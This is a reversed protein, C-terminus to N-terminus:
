PIITGEWVKATALESADLGGVIYIKGGIQEVTFLFLPEPLAPGACWSDSGVDYLYISDKVTTNKIGGMLWIKSGVVTARAGYKTESLSALSSWTNTSPNFRRGLVPEFGGGVVGFVYLQGNYAVGTNGGGGALDPLPALDTWTNTAPDYMNVKEDNGTFGGALYMKGNIVAAAPYRRPWPNEALLTWTDSAPNWKMPDDGGFLGQGFAILSGGLSAAAGEDAAYPMDSKVTWANTSPNFVRHKLYSSGGLVHLEGNFAASIINQEPSSLPARPTWVVSPGPCTGGCGDPAGPCANACSPTCGCFGGSCVLGGDCSGGCCPQGSSGCDACMQGLCAKGAGCAGNCTGGCGDPAGGCKNTCNPPCICTGGSCSLGGNCTGGCCAEGSDGCPVCEQSSCTTGAPCAGNCTGGCEDPAGGCKNACAPECIDPVCGGNQCVLGSGCPSQNQLPDAVCVGGTCKLCAGCQVNACGDSQICGGNSCVMAGGCPAGNQAPDAVCVGEDCQLCKGCVVGACPDEEPSQTVERVVAGQLAHKTIYDQSIWGYGAEGWNTGWSNKFHFFWKQQNNSDLMKKYGVLLIAHAWAGAPANVPEIKGNLKWAVGVHSLSLIVNIKDGEALRSRLGDINTPNAIAKWTLIGYHAHSQWGAAGSLAGAPWFAETTLKSSAAAQLTAQLTKQEHLASLQAESLDSEMPQFHAFSEMGAVTAYDVCTLSQGQQRVGTQFAAHDVTDPLDQGFVPDPDWDAENLDEWVQEEAPILNMREGDVEVYGPDDADESELKTCGVLALSALVLARKGPTRRRWLIALGVLSVLALCGSAGGDVGGGTSTCAAPGETSAPEPPDASSGDDGSPDCPPTACSGVGIAPTLRVQAFAIRRSDAGGTYKEGTNDDLRLAPGAGAPFDFTGLTVFKGANVEQDVEVVQSSAGLWLKYKAKKSLKTVAPVFVDVTYPGAQEPSLYWKAYSEPQGEDTTYTWYALGDDSDVRTWTSSPGLLTFCSSELEIVTASYASIKCPPMHAALFLSPVLLGWDTLQQRTSQYNPFSAKNTSRMEFHLHPGNADGITGIQAGVEVVDNTAVSITKLHLYASYFKRTPAQSTSTGPLVYSSVPEDVGTDHEIIVGHLLDENLKWAKIVKGDAVAHVPEDIDCDGGQNGAANADCDLNLDEGPHLGSQNGCAACYTGFDNNAYWGRIRPSVVNQAIDSVGVAKVPYVFELAQADARREWGLLGTSLLVLTAVSRLLAALRPDIRRRSNQGGTASGRTIIDASAWVSRNVRKRHMLGENKILTTPDHM